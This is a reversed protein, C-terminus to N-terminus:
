LAAPGTSGVPGTYGPIYIIYIAQQDVRERWGSEKKVFREGVKGLGNRERDQL